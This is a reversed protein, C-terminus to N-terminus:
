LEDKEKQPATFPPRYVSWRYRAAEEADDCAGTGACFGGTSAEGYRRVLSASSFFYVGTAMCM